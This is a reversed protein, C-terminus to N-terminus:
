LSLRKQSAQILTKLEEIEASFLGFRESFELAQQAFSLSSEYNSREFETEALAKLIWRFTYWKKMERALELGEHGIDFAAEFRGLRHNVVALNGLAGALILQNQERLIPIIAELGDKAEILRGEDAAIM